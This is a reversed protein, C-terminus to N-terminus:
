QMGGKVGAIDDILEESLSASEGTSSPALRGAAVAAAEELLTVFTSESANLARTEVEGEERYGAYSASAVFPRLTSMTGNGTIRLRAREAIVDAEMVLMDSWGATVVRGAAGSPFRCLFDAAPEGQQALGPLMLARWEQVPEGALYLLLDIAHSGISWLRNPAMITISTVQGLRGSGISERAQRFPTAYRRNYNVILPVRHRACAAVLARRRTRDVELPKEVVMVKPRHVELLREVLPARGAPPTCVSVVDPQMAAMMEVADGFVRAGRCRASFRERNAADPDAGAVLAYTARLALYAGAHSWVTPRAEEDFRSGVKGLGVVAARLPGANM